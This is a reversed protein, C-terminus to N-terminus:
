LSIVQMGLQPKVAQPPSLFERQKSINHARGLAIARSKGRLSPTEAFLELSTRSYLM